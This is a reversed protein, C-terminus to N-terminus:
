LMFYLKHCLASPIGYEKEMIEKIEKIKEKVANQNPHNRYVSEQMIGTMFYKSEEKNM